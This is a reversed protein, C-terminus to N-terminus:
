GCIEKGQRIHSYLVEHPTKYKLSLHLREENYIKISESIAKIAEKMSSFGIDIMFEDKLIGNVREALANEYVHDKETMSINIDKSVLYNIYDHCCYQMGRDSHHISGKLNYSKEAKMIAKLPGNHSLDSSLYWGIISRSGYDTALSLYSHKGRKMPIYTIDSVIVELPKIDKLDRILNTYKKFIHNSNTTRYARKKKKVLLSKKSLLSFLKDRGTKKMLNSDKSVLMEHLKRTGTRPMRGRIKLVEEIIKTEISLQLETQKKRKYFAQKSIGFRNSVASVSLSISSGLNQRSKM